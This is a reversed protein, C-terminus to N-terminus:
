LLRRKCGSCTKASILNRTGCNSCANNLATGCGCYLANSRNRTQCKPCITIDSKAAQNEQGAIKRETSVENM